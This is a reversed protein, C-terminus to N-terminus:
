LPFSGFKVKKCLHVIDMSARTNRKSGHNNEMTKSSYASHKVTTYKGLPKIDANLNTILTDGASLM